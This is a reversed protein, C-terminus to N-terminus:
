ALAALSAVVYDPPPDLAAADDASTVGSLVLITTWGRARGGDLDSDPRDGVVAIRTAGELRAAVVDMMPAHPKGMVEARCGAATEISALISGAGPRLGEPAPYTADANTAILAAGSRVATAARRMKDYTFGEDWGVVVADVPSDDEVAAIGEAELAETVGRGGVVLARGGSLGRRALTEATVVASSVIDRARAPVGVGALREVYQGVTFHSNNTAFVVTVGVARLRAIADGGGPIALHGRYLVGDLDCMVGDIGGPGFAPGGTEVERTM